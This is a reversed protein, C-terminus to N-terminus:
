VRIRSEKGLGICEHAISVAVFLAMHMENINKLQKHSLM